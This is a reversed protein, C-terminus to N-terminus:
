EVPVLQHSSNRGGACLEPGDWGEGGVQVTNYLHRNEDQVSALRQEMGQYKQVQLTSPISSSDHPAACAAPTATM